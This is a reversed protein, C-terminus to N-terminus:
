SEAQMNMIQFVLISHRKKNKFNSDKIKLKFVNFPAKYFCLLLYFLIKLM